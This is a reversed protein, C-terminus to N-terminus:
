SRRRVADGFADRARGVLGGIETIVSRGRQGYYNAADAYDKDLPQDGEHGRRPYEGRLIRPYAESGAWRRLEATRM